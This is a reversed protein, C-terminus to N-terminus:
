TGPDTSKGRSAMASPASTTQFAIPGLVTRLPTPHMLSGVDEVFQGLALLGLGIVAAHVHSLLTTQSEDHRSHRHLVAEALTEIPAHAALREVLAQEEVTIMRRGFDRVPDGIAVRPPRM